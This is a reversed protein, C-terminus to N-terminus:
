SNYEVTLLEIELNGFSNRIELDAYHKSGNDGRGIYRVVFGYGKNLYQEALIPNLPITLDVGVTGYPLPEVACNIV